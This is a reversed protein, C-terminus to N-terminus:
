LQIEEVLFVFKKIKIFIKIKLQIFFEKIKLFIQEKLQFNEQNLLDLAVPLLLIQHFLFKIKIQKLKGITKKKQFKSLGKM